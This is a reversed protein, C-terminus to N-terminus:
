KVDSLSSVAYGNVVEKAVSNLNDNEYLQAKKCLIRTWRLRLLVSLSCM